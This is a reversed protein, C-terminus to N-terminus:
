RPDDTGTRALVTAHMAEHDARARDREATKQQDASASRKTSRKGASPRPGYAIDDETPRGATADARLGQKAEADAKAIEELSTTLTRTLARRDAAAQAAESADLFKTWHARGVYDGTLTYVEVFEVRSPFYRLRVDKGEVLQRWRMGKRAEPAQSEEPVVTAPMMYHRGDWRVRSRIVKRTLEQTMSARIAQTDAPRIEAPDACWAEYPTLGNLSGHPREFNYRRLAKAIELRLAEIPLMSAPDVPTPERRPDNPRYDSRDFGPLGACVERKVTRHWREIRGNQEPTYAESFSRGTGHEILGITMAHTALDSGRDSHLTLPQGGIFEGDETTYGEMAVAVTEVSEETTPTYASITFALVMRTASDLITTMWPKAYTGDPLLVWNPLQTHDTAWEDNRHAVEREFLPSAAKLAQYGGRAGALLRQDYDTAFYRQMTRKSVGPEKGKECLDDYVQSVSGQWRILRITPDAEPKWRERPKCVYGRELMRRIRRTSCQLADAAIRVDRNSVQGHADRIRLLTALVSAEREPSVTVVATTM